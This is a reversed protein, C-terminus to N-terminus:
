CLSRGAANVLDVIEQSSAGSGGDILADAVTQASAGAQLLGCIERGLTVLNGDTQFPWGDGSVGRAQRIFVTASGSGGTSRTASTSPVDRHSAISEPAESWM